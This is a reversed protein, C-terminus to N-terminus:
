VHGYLSFTMDDASVGSGGISESWNSVFATRFFNDEAFLYRASSLPTEPDIGFWPIKILVSERYSALSLEAISLIIVVLSSNNM